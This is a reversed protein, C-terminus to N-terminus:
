GRTTDPPAPKKEPAKNKNLNDLLGKVGSKAKEQLQQQGQQLMGKQFKAAMAQTDVKVTPKLLAGSLTLPVEIRGDPSLLYKAAPVEAVLDSAVKQSFALTSAVNMEKDLSFWGNGHLAFDSTALKLDPAQIRGNAIQFKSSLNQFVTKNEAFLKPNRARMRQTLGAPVMPVNQIGAFIQDAINVNLLAGELVLAGGNGTLTKQVDEWQKGQGAVQVDANLRGALVDALAPAKYSFYEALNVNELRAAVDFKSAGPEMTGSGSVEGGLARASYRNITTVEPTVRVDASLDVYDLNAVTGRESTVVLTNENVKPATEKLNGTAVVKKFVEPRPLPKAGPAPAQVDLRRVEESSVTYHAQMPHFSTVALDMFFRSDGIQFKADDIHATKATFAVKAEGDSVPKPMQAVKAGVDKLYATGTIQPPANPQPMGSVHVNATADGKVAFPALAPLLDNWPKLPTKANLTLELAKRGEFPVMRGSGTASLAHFTVDIKELDIGEGPTKQPRFTGRVSARAPIGPSKVFTPQQDPGRQEISANTADLVGDFALALLNGDFSASARVDGGLVPPPTKADKGKLKFDALAIAETDLKGKLKARAFVQTSDATFDFPGGAATLKLNPEQADFLASEVSLEELNAEGLKGSLKAKARLRGPIPAPAPKGPRASARMLDAIAVQDLELRVDLPTGRLAERDSPDPLPGASAEIRVDQQEGFVTAALKADLKEGIGVHSATFDIDRVTRDTGQVRDTYRVVGDKIDAFALAAAMSANSRPKTGRATGTPASAEILSTFNFRKPAVKIIVINPENLVLRKIEVRKKLLPLLRVNVILEKARVFPEAGYTPDDSIVVDRVSAGLGPWLTVGVDGISIDRGTQQKARALIDDKRSNVIRDLNATVIGVGIAVLAVLAGAIMLLKKKM